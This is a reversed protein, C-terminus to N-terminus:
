AGTGGPKGLAEEAPKNFLSGGLPGISTQGSAAQEAAQRSAQRSFHVSMSGSSQRLEQISARNFVTAVVRGGVSNIQDVARKVLPRLQNRGVVMLVGDVSPALLGAEISGLIPGSDILVTDYEEKFTDVIYRIVDPSLRSIRHEDGLGAPLISLRDFRSPHVLSKLDGRGAALDALSPAAPHGFHLSLGRGILDMDILLTRDGSEAYSLGLAIIMSTKGDGPAPSTVAFATNAAGGFLIQLQARIQHVAFASAEALERDTLSRGLDPLLGVIRSHASELIADDSFRVRRGIMGVGMMMMVPIAGGGVFGAIAMKIRKDSSPSSPQTAAGVISIRGSVDPFSSVQSETVIADIRQETRQIDNEIDARLQNQDRLRLSAESLSTRAKKAEELREDVRALRSELADLGLNGLPVGTGGETLVSSEIAAIRSQIQAQVQELATTNRRYDRHGELIGSAIFSRQQSELEARIKLLEAVTPDLEAAQEPTLGGSESGDNRRNALVKLEEIQNEIVRKQDQYESVTEFAAQVQLGLDMGWERAIDSIVNDIKNKDAQLTRRRTELSGLTAESGLESSRGYLDMYADIVSQCAAQAVRADIHEYSVFILQQSARNTQVKLNSGFDEVTVIGALASVTRWRDSDMAYQLVRHQQMLEAQAAVYSSFMQPAASQETEFLIKPLVPQIQIVSQSRYVPEQTIFGAIGGCVAFLAGLAITILYRGRLLRHAMVLANGQQDPSDDAWHPNIQSANM